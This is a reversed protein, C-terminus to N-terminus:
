GGAEVWRCHGDLPHTPFSALFRLGLGGVWGGVLGAVGRAAKLLRIGSKALTM